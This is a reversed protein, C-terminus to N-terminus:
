SAEFHKAKLSKENGSLPNRSIEGEQKDNPTAYHKLTNQMQQPYSQHTSQICLDSNGVDCIGVGVM